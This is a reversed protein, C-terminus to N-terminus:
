RRSRNSSKTTTSALAAQVGDAFNDVMASISFRAASETCGRELRALRARDPLLGLVGEGFSRVDDPTVLSNHESELYEFEASQWPWETTVIPTKLAFSDVAVLGVSGPMLILDSVSALRAKAQTDARGVYVLWPHQAASQEILGRLPGDGAVILRFDPRARAVQECAEVLFELRKHSALAGVFLCTAGEGIELRARLAEKDDETVAAAAAELASTDTSNQVVTVQDRPYGAAAVYDAGGKTYAFFWRSQGLLRRKAFRALSGHRSRTRWNTSGYGIGFLAVPAGGFRRRLFLLYTQLNKLVDEVIILDLNPPFGRSSQWIANAGGARIKRSPTPLISPDSAVVDGRGAQGAPSRGAAVILEIQRAALTEKLLRFFPLRYEPVYEQIILVKPM